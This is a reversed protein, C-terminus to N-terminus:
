LSRSEDWSGNEEEMESRSISVVLIFFLMWKEEKGLEGKLNSEIRISHIVSECLESTVYCADKHTHTIIM